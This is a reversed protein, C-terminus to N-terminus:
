RSAGSGGNVPEQEARPEPEPESICGLSADPDRLPEAAAHGTAGMGPPRGFSSQRTPSMRGSAPGWVDSGAM